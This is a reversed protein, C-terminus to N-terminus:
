LPPPRSLISAPLWRAAGIVPKGMFYNRMAPDTM